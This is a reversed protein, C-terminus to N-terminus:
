NTNCINLSAEGDGEVDSNVALILQKVAPGHDSRCGYLALVMALSAIAARIFQTARM